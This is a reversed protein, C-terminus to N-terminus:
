ENVRCDDDESSSSCREDLGPAVLLTRQTRHDLEKYIVWLTQRGSLLYLLPYIATFIRPLPRPCGSRLRRTPSTCRTTTVRITRNGRM